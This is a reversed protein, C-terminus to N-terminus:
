KSRGSVAQQGAELLRRVELLNEAPYQAKSTRNEPLVISFLRHPLSRLQLSPTADPVSRLAQSFNRLVIEAALWLVPFLLRGSKM